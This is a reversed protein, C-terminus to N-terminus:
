FYEPTIRQGAMDTNNPLFQSNTGTSKSVQMTSQDDSYRTSNADAVKFMPSDNYDNQTFPLDNEEAMDDSLPKNMTTANVEDADFKWIKLM